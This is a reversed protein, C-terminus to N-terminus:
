YRRYATIKKWNSPFGMIRLLDQESLQRNESVAKEILRRLQRKYQFFEEDPLLYRFAIAVAFYDQKGMAYSEGRRPLALKKHLTLDPISKRGCRHSFMRDNHACLNRFDTLVNLLQGLQKENIGIFEHSVASRVNSASLSYMKSLTGFTLANVLVWLPVNGHMRKQHEIYPYNTSRDLLPHLFKELLLHLERQNRRRTDYNKPDLYASQRDGFAMCFAYSLTSRLHREIHLLHHLTLERLQEDFQYLAYIDEITTGDRYNRTTPNKFLDKYGSILAFYGEKRLIEKAAEEDPIWLNKERLKQIQQDYTMFPKAMCEVENYLFPAEASVGGIVPVALM